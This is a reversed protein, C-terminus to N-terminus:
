LTKTSGKVIDDQELYWEPENEAGDKPLFYPPVNDESNSHVDDIAFSLLPEIRFDYESYQELAKTKEVSEELEKKSM